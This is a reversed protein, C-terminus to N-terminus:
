SKKAASTSTWTAKAIASASSWARTSRPRRSSSCSWARDSVIAGSTRQPIKGFWPSWGDILSNMIGSGKTDTLFESRFGILGRSPV